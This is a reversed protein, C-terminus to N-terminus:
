NTKGIFLSCKIRREDYIDQDFVSREDVQIHKLAEEVLTRRADRLSEEYIMHNMGGRDMTSIEVRLEKFELEKSIFHVHTQIESNEKKTVADLIEEKFFAFLAKKFRKKKM